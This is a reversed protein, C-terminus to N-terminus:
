TFIREGPIRGSTSLAYALLFGAALSTMEMSFGDTFFYRSLLSLSGAVLIGKATTRLKFLLYLTGILPSMMLLLGMLGYNTFLSLYANHAAFDTFGEGFL